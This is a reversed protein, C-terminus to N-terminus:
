ENGKRAKRRRSRRTSKIFYVREVDNVLNSFVEAYAKPIEKDKNEWRCITDNNVGLEPAVEIQLLGAANRLQKMRFGNM